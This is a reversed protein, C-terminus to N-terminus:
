RYINVTGKLPEPDNATTKFIYFYTGDPLEENNYTGEWDNNYPAARYVEDGWRNFIIVENNPNDKVCSIEWTDNMEDGNPTIVTPVICKDTEISLTVIAWRCVEQGDCDLCIEYIFQDDGLFGNDPTYTFTGDLHNVLFGNSVDSTVNISFIGPLSGPIVDNLTVDFNNVTTNLEVPVEDPEVNAPSSVIVPLSSSSECGNEIITYTYLNVGNQGPTISIENQNVDIPLGPADGTATWIMSDVQISLGTLTCSEGACVYDGCTSAIIPAVPINTIQITDCIINSCGNEEFVEVCYIGADDESAGSILTNQDNSFVTGSPNTWIFSDITVANTVQVSLPIDTSGDPEVCNLTNVIMALEPGQSVVVVTSDTSTCNTLTDTITVLYTGSDVMALNDLFPNAVDPIIRNPNPGIWTYTAGPVPTFPDAFLQTSGATCVTDPTAMVNIGVFSTVTITTECLVTSTNGYLDMAEFQIIHQGIGLTDGSAIGSSTITPIGCNDNGSPNNLVLIVSDCGLPTTAIDIFNFTNPDIIDGNTSITVDSPCFVSPVESDIITVNFSCTSINGSADTATFTVPTSGIPFNSGSQPTSVLTPSADCNDSVTPLNWIVGASCNNGASITMDIPCDVMIPAETDTVTIDFSCSSVNGSADTATYTVTTTGTMFPTGLPPSVVVAVNNDCNDTITPEVWTVVTDCAIGSPITMDAPCNAIIPAETETVTIDFSCSSINGSADTATYTVTTTGASFTTGLAPSVVVAVNNDCNDTITPEVWTVVTDCAIGLPISMNVPCNSIIPAETDTVTIDFSCSSVNGSADTATYTVTTTGVMFPTGLAPSVVVTVNNDCNDTITPEVWTVVTDCAIGSPITMNTPCNTIIPAETDIVTIDFSCTSINLNVDYAYYTVTTTGAMFPTGLAPLVIVTVNNDCNDTITPEVWTVLTDCTIGASITMDTPCNTITPAETDTVTVTIDFSCSSANGSADTATYTVTTTGASFTTGSPSSVVIGVNNDCNDSFTPETWTVVTDCAFVAAITMDTPCNSIIPAETDTITIYFSCSSVNGSVDTATYTVPTTGAMFVSGLPPSVVVTVNNDCLDSITPEVWTVMTDCAIGAAITMDAPCNSIIPAETDTVTIDFSCSSVNGSADTATYIVTTTGVMFPTGFSPSAVITVNNDCNDTITPEVWTVATDCAIGSSITMDVPCNTIIPANTDIVTIDFSCSSVNGSADTATYTVTTTGAMFSTGLPPSVVVGVNNDCLDTIIPEVWTVVTDCTIGSSITIDAPCNTITPAETDTVTVTVDFSCSSVNGSADTATYTVTTTGVTFSTGLPPSVVVGVNNDCLDTITPEVWTVVTDCAIGAPITIDVPCNTIIPAETDTVTIDFSCSSINGSADTATYTVTTTGAMFPTGLAPSVVVSVNNDCNDTITPEVWTVVTDCAVGSPITMNVPCNTIIPAETDTVTIDFSCISINGSADTATYTVTTTGIPFTTGSPSSVVVAVNNDCDDTIMPEGWTVITDCTIGAAITMDAPCNTIIPANTDTVTIDFSCNSTNGSADTATYTVTTTGTMFATGLPPNAVLAVNNSCNDIVSPVFWTVVTDCAIGSPVTMNSPCNLFIPADIDTVTINFKCSDLNGANDIAFYTIVTTGLPFFDGSSFPSSSAIQINTDCNDTATPATWTVNAGCGSPASSTIFIDAPCMLSPANTDISTISQNAISINGAADVTSWTRTIISSGPIPGAATSESILNVITVGDCQDNATLNAPSPINDCEVTIDNPIGSIVPGELDDITVDFSCTEPIGSNFTVTYLVSSTGLNFTFNSINGSGTAPGSTGTIVWSITNVDNPDSLITIPLDLTASCVNFDTGQNVNMPCEITLPDQIVTTNFSSSTTGALITSLWSFAHAEENAENQDIVKNPIGMPNDISTLTLATSDWPFSYDSSAMQIFNQADIDNSLTSTACDVTSSRPTFEVFAEAFSKIPLALLVLLLFSQFKKMHKFIVSPIIKKLFM